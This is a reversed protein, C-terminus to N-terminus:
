SPLRAGEILAEVREAAERECKLAAAHEPSHPDTRDRVATAISLEM